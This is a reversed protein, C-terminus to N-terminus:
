FYYDIGVSLYGEARSYNGKQNRQIFVEYDNLRYTIGFYSEHYYRNNQFYTLNSSALIKFNKSLNSGAVLEIQGYVGEDLNLGFGALLGHHLVAQERAVGLLYEAQINKKDLDIHSGDSYNFSVAKSWGLSIDKFDLYDLLYFSELSGQTINYDLAAIKFRSSSRNDPFITRLMHSAPTFSIISEDDVIKVGLISDQPNQLPEYNESRETHQAPLINNVREVMKELRLAKYIDEPSVFLKEYNLLAPNVISLTYLTLTACNFKQFYYTPEVDKLEWMSDRILNRENEALALDLEWIERTEVNLYRDVDRQYPRLAFSGEMGGIFADYAITLSNAQRLDTYFAYSHSVLQSNSEVEGESVLFGHGMMSTINTISRGALVYKFKDAPALEWYEVLEACVNDISDILKHELLFAYRAPYKCIESSSEFYEITLELEREPSPEEHSLLFESNNIKFSGNFYVLREWREEFTVVKSSMSFGSAPAISFFLIVFGLVIGQSQRITLM